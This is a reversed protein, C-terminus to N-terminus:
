KSEKFKKIRMLIEVFTNVVFIAVAIIGAVQLTESIYYSTLKSDKQVMYYMIRYMGAGPVLTLIGSIIFLTIPAKFKRAMIHACISIAVAAWFNKALIGPNIAQVFLYVAWGAAGLIGASFAYKKPIRQLMSFGIIAVYAGAIQILEKM